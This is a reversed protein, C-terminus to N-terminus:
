RVANYYNLPVQRMPISTPDGVGGDGGGGGGGTTSFGGRGRSAGAPATGARRPSPPVLRETTSALGQEYLRAATGEMHQGPRTGHELVMSHWLLHGAPGTRLSKVLGSGDPLGARAGEYYGRFPPEDVFRATGHHLRATGEVGGARTHLRSAALDAAHSGPLPDVRAREGSGVESAWTLGNRDRPAERRARAEADYDGAGLEAATTKHLRAPLEGPRLVGGKRQEHTPFYGPRRDPAELPQPNQEQGWPDVEVLPKLVVRKLNGLAYRAFPRTPPPQASRLEQNFWEPADM